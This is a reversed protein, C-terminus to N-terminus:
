HIGDSDVASRGFLNMTRKIFLWRDIRGRDIRSLRGVVNSRGGRFRTVVLIEKREKERFTLDNKRDRSLIPSDVFSSM